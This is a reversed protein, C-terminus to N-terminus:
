VVGGCAGCVVGRGLHETRVGLWSCLAGKRQASGRECRYGFSNARAGSSFWMTLRAGTRAYVCRQGVSAVPRAGAGVWVEGGKGGRWSRGAGRGAGRM